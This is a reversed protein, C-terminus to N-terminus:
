SASWRAPSCARSEVGDARPLRAVAHARQRRDGVAPRSSVIAARPRVRPRADPERDVAGRGRHGARLHQRRAPDSDDRRAGRRDRRRDACRDHVRLPPVPEVAPRTWWALAVGGLAGCVIFAATGAITKDRNWPLCDPDHLRFQKRELRARGILTAAGDGLALIAWAAAVIDLRSPFVLILAARRASLAPHRASVRASRRGPSVAPPRRHAAARRRQVVLAFRPWRRPRGGADPVAAAARVAGSGIHVWQRARRLTRDAPLSASALTRRIGGALPTM